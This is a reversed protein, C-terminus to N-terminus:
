LSNVLNVLQNILIFPMIQQNKIDTETNDTPMIITEGVYKSLSANSNSTILYTNSSIIPNVKFFDIYQKGSGSVSFLILPANESYYYPFHSIETMDTLATSQKGIDILQYTLMQAALYSKYIGITFSQKSDNINQALKEIKLYDVARLLETQKIFTDIFDNHKENNRGLVSTKLTNIMDYRFDSYGSYGLRQCFRLVASKSVNITEAVKIITNNEIIQPNEVIYDAVKKETTTYESMNKKILDFINM